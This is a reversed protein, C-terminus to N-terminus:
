FWLTSQVSINEFSSDYSSRWSCLLSATRVMPVEELLGETTVVSEGVTEGEVTTSCVKTVMHVDVVGPTGEMTTKNNNFIVM